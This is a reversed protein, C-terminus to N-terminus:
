LYLTNSKLVNSHPMIKSGMCVYSNKLIHPDQSFERLIM